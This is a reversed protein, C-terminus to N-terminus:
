QPRRQGNMGDNLQQTFVRQFKGFESNFYAIGRITVPGNAGIITSEATAPLVMEVTEVRNPAIRQDFPRSTPIITYAGLGVTEVRVQELRIDESAKNMVDLLLNVSIPGTVHRAALPLGGVQRVVVDPPTLAVRSRGSSCATLLIPAAALLILLVAGKKM